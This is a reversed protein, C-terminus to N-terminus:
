LVGWRVKGVERAREARYKQAIEFSRGIWLVERQQASLAALLEDTLYEEWHFRHDDAEAERYVFHNMMRSHPGENRHTAHWIATSRVILQHPEVELAVEGPVLADIDNTFSQPTKDIGQERRAQEIKELWPERPGRHSGPLVRLCGNSRRGGTFYHMIETRDMDYDRHWAVAHGVHMDNIGGNRMYIDHTGYLQRILEVVEDNLIIRLFPLSHDLVSWYSGPMQPPLRAHNGISDEIAGVPQAAVKDVAALCAETLEVIWPCDMIIYGDRHYQELQADTLKM